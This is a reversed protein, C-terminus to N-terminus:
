AMISIESKADLLYQLNQDNENFLGQTIGDILAPFEIRLCQDLHLVNVVVGERQHKNTPHFIALLAFVQSPEMVDRKFSLRFDTTQRELLTQQTSAAALIPSLAFGFYKVLDSYQKRLVVSANIGQMVATTNAVPQGSALRFIDNYLIPATVSATVAGQQLERYIVKASFITAALNAQKTQM